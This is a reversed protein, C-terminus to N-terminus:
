YRSTYFWVLRVLVIVIGIVGLLPIAVAVFQVMLPLLFALACLLGVAVYLRHYLGNMVPRDRLDVLDVEADDRHRAHGRRVRELRM